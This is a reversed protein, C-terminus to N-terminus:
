DKPEVDKNNEGTESARKLWYKKNYERVKEKHKRRWENQYDRRKQMAIAEINQETM